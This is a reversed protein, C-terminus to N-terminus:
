PNRAAKLRARYKRARTAGCNSRGLRREYSKRARRAAALRALTEKTPAPGAPTASRAAQVNVYIDEKTLKFHRLVADPHAGLVNRCIWRFSCAGTKESHLWVIAARQRGKKTEQGCVYAPPGRRADQVAADLVALWLSAYPYDAQLDCHFTGRSAGPPKRTPKDM